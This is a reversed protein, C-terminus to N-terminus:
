VYRHIVALCLPTLLLWVCILIRSFDQTTQSLFGVFLLFTSVLSWGALIQPFRSSSLDANLPNYVGALKMMFPTVLLTIGALATYSLSWFLDDSFYSLVFHCVILLATALVADTVRQLGWLQHAQLLGTLKRKKKRPM